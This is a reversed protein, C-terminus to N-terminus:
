RTGGRRRGLVRQDEFGAPRWRRAKGVPQEVARKRAMIRAQRSAASRSAPFARIYRRGAKERKAKSFQSHAGIHRSRHIIASRIIAKATSSRRPPEHDKQKGASSALGEPMRHSQSGLSYGAPNEQGAPISGLRHGLAECRPHPRGRHVAQVASPEAFRHCHMPRLGIACHM